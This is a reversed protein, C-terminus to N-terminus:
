DKKPNERKPAGVDPATNAKRDETQEQLPFRRRLRNILFLKQATFSVPHMQEFLISWENWRDPEAQRFSEPDIKKKIIYEELSDM